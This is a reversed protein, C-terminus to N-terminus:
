REDKAAKILIIKLIKSRNYVDIEPLCSPPSGSWKENTQCSLTESGELVNGLDCSYTATSPYSYGNNLSFSGNSPDSLVPCTIPLCSPSSGSWIENTQCTLTNAGDLVYGSGCSYTASSPYTYGNNLSFSGNSPDSLVPCTIAVLTWGAAFPDFGTGTFNTNFYTPSGVTTELGVTNTLNALRLNAGTLDAGTLDAGTFDAETLDEGALDADTLDVGPGVIYDNRVIYGTPLVSPPATLQGSVGTLDLGGAGARTLSAGTLDAGSLDVGPGVINGNANIDSPRLTNFVMPNYGLAANAVEAGDLLGDADTDPENPDSVGEQKYWAITDTTNYQSSASLVDVDGDGDMDVAFVSKVDDATTIEQKAGFSGNGDTNEYWAITNDSEEASLVDVDGDGDVDLAFASTPGSVENTIVQVGGFSGDGDTNEYWAIKSSSVSLVDLDGDGDVDAAFVFDSNLQGDDMASSQVPGFSGNGDTNEYWSITSNSISLVDMDGDGDLDTASVSSARYASSTIVQKRGFSGNGDLNEYWEITSNQSSASLVDVDGDGDMDAAYLSGESNNATNTIVQKQGFSGNGDMNEYWQITSDTEWSSVLDVDGDGDVDAAYVSSSTSSRYTVMQTNNITQESGFRGNCEFPDPDPDDPVCEYFEDQEYWSIGLYATYEGVDSNNLTSASASLVDVYGDGNVDVAVVSNIASGRNTIVKKPEFIGTGIEVGDLLLDNDTDPDNPDTGALQEAANGLGDADKDDQGDVRSNMDEDALFFNFGYTLEFTDLLGDGDTDAGPEPVFIWGAALPDFGTGTLNTSGSFQPTGLTSALGVANTLDAGTLDIDTLDEGTIDAGTLDVGPGVLYNNRDFYGTPLASPPVSLQGSVGTLTAGTLDVGTFDLGAFDAGTLDAGPGAIYNNRAFYGTPLTSPPASFQGSVGTLTAGTLDAGTLDAGTLDAGTLNTNTLDANTLDVGPGVIYNNAIRYFTPFKVPPASLRGSVGTLEARTLNTGTLDAGTLGVGTLTANTLNAGPLDVGTLEVGTFDEGTLDANTLDVDPGVIYNNRIVYGSPLSGSFTGSSLQGSVGTLTAGTLDVGALKTNSLNAGTLDVGPGVIYNNRIVYDIPLRLPTAALKGFVGTLTAGTLDAGTLKAGTLDAGTLNAGILDTDMLDVGPGVINGNGNLDVSRLAGFVIPNYGLAANAVESGDRLGDGDTDARVPNTLHVTVEGCDTLGDSDFDGIASPALWIDKMAIDDGGGSGEDVEVSFIQETSVFGIFAGEVSYDPLSVSKLVTGGVGIAKVTEGAEATNGVIFFGVARLPRALIVSFDDNEYNNTDGISLANETFVLGSGETDDFTFGASSQLTRLEFASCLNHHNFALTAGLQKNTGPSNGFWQDSLAINTATTKIERYSGAQAKAAVKWSALNNYLTTGAFASCPLLTLYIAGLFLKKFHATILLSPRPGAIRSPFNM